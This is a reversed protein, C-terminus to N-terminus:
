ETSQHRIRGVMRFRLKFQQFECETLSGSEHMQNIFKRTPCMRGKPGCKPWLPFKTKKRTEQRLPNQRLVIDCGMCLNPNRPYVKDKTPKKGM